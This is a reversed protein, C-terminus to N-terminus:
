NNCVKTKFQTQTDSQAQGTMLLRGAEMAANQLAQQAFLFVAVQFIAILLAIFMPAILAFEVATAAERAVGFRAVARALQHITKRM